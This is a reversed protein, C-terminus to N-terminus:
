TVVDLERSAAGYRLRSSIEARRRALAKLNGLAERAADRAARGPGPVPHRQPTREGPGFCDTLYCKMDSIRSVGRLLPLVDAYFADGMPERHCHLRAPRVRAHTSALEVCELNPFPAKALFEFRGSDDFVFTARRVKERILQPLAAAREVGMDLTRSALYRMEDNEVVDVVHGAAGYDRRSITVYSWDLAEAVHEDWGRAVAWLSSTTRFSIVTHIFNGDIASNRGVFSIVTHIVDAPLSNLSTM